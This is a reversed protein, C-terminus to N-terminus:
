AVSVDEHSKLEHKTIRLVVSSTQQFGGGTEVVKM